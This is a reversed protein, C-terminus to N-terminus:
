LIEIQHDVLEADPHAKLIEVIRSLEAAIKKSDNSCTTLGITAAQWLDQDGIEAVAVNFRSRLRDKISRVVKRKTKLSQSGRIRLTFQLIGVEMM